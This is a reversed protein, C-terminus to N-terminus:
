SPRQARGLVMNTVAAAKLETLFDPVDSWGLVCDPYFGTPAGHENMVYPIGDLTVVKGYVM